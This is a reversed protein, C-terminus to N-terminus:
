LTSASDPLCVLFAWPSSGPSLTKVVRLPAAFGGGEGVPKMRIYAVKEM